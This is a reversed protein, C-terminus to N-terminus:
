AGGQKSVEKSEADIIKLKLKSERELENEQSKHDRDVDSEIQEAELRQTEAQQAAAETEAQQNAIQRQEEIAAQRAADKQEPSKKLEDPNLDNAIAIKESIGTIDYEERLEPDSIILALFQRLQNALISKNQFTSFGTAQVEFDGKIDPDDSQAMNWHYLAIIMPEIIREDFYRLVLGLQKAASSIRANIEFATQQPGRIVEGELTKPLGSALDAWDDVRLMGELLGGTVDPIEITQFKDKINVGERFRFNKGPRLTLDTGPELADESIAFILNGSLKKNDIFARLFGNMVSQPDRLQRALGRGQPQGPLREWQVMHYPRMKGPFKNEKVRLIRGRSFTVIVEIPDIDNLETDINLDPHGILDMKTVVGAYEFTIISTSSDEPQLSTRHRGSSDDRADKNNERLIENIAEINYVKDGDEDVVSGLDYMGKPTMHARYFMGTMKQTDGLSEPDPFFDWPDINSVMPVTETFEELKFKANKRVFEQAAQQSEKFAQLAESFAEEGLEAFEDPNPEPLIDPLPPIDATYRNRKKTVLEPCRIVGTGLIACNLACALLEDKAKSEILQDTIKLKMRDLREDLDFGLELLGENPSDPVPTNKLNFPFRGGQFWIDSIQSMAVNIKSRTMPHFARTRWNKGESNSGEPKYEQMYNSYDLDWDVETTKRASKYSEFRKMLISILPDGNEEKEIIEATSLEKGMSLMIFFKENSVIM